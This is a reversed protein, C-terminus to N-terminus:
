LKNPAIDPKGKEFAGTHVLLLIILLVISLLGNYLGNLLNTQSCMYTYFIYEILLFLLAFLFFIIKNRMRFFFFIIPSFILSFVISFILVYLIYYSANSMLEHNNTANKVVLIRFRNGVFSLIISFIFYKILLYLLVRLYTPKRIKMYNIEKTGNPLKIHFM